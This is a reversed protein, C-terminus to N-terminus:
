SGNDDIDEQENCDREAMQSSRDLALSESQKNRSCDRIRPNYRESTTWRRHSSKDWNSRRRRCRCRAAGERDADRYRAHGRDLRHAPEASRHDAAAHRQGACIGLFGYRVITSARRRSRRCMPWARSGSPAPAALIKLQKDAYQPLRRHDAVRLTSVRGAILDPMVQPGTRFPIRNMQIGALKEIQRALIEQASGAGFTAYSIEGPHAKAYQVFAKFDDAPVANAVALGYYYRAILSIPALDSLKFGANKYLATNISEFHTCLLLNYGDRRSRWCTAPRWCAPPAPRTRSSSASASCRASSTPSFGRRFTPRAAPASASWSGCPADSLLGACGRRCRSCRSPACVADDPRASTSRPIM